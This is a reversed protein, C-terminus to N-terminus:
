KVDAKLEGILDEVEKDNPFKQQIKTIYQAPLSTNQLMQKAEQPNSPKGQLFASMLDTRSMKSYDVDGNKNEDDKKTANDENTLQLGKPNEQVNEGKEAKELLAQSTASSTLSKASQLTAQAKLLTSENTKPKENGFFSVIKDFFGTNNDTQASISPTSQASIEGASKAQTFISASNANAVEAQMFISPCNSQTLSVRAAGNAGTSFNNKVNAMDSVFNFSM